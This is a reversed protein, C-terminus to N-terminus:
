NPRFPITRWGSLLPNLIFHRAAHRGTRTVSGLNFGEELPDEQLATEVTTLLEALLNVKEAQSPYFLEVGLILIAAAEAQILEAADISVPELVLALLQRQLAGLVARFRGLESTDTNPLKTQGNLLMCPLGFLVNERQQEYGPQESSSATFLRQVRLDVGNLQEEESRHAAMSGMVTTSIPSRIFEALNATLIRLCALIISPQYLQQYCSASEGDDFRPLTQMDRHLFM